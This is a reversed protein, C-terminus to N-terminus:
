KTPLFLFSELMWFTEYYILFVSLFPLATIRVDRRSIPNLYMAFMSTFAFIFILIWNIPFFDIISLMVLMPKVAFVAAGFGLNRWQIRMFRGYSRALLKRNLIWQSFSYSPDLSHLHIVRAESCVVPGAKNLRVHLDGDEGGIFIDHGYHVDDFGGISQFVRKNICDFKGNLGAKEKGVSTALLCKEWFPFKEWIKVPTVIYSYTAVISPNSCMPEILLKLENKTPLISDSHMCVVYSTKARNIGINYSTGVGRNVKNILLRIPIKKNTRQFEKVIVVSNDDSANDIIIIEAIPYKQEFISKLTLLITSFSNRMPVVVSVKPQKM